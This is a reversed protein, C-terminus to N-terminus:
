LNRTVSFVQPEREFVTREAVSYDIQPGQVAEDDEGQKVSYATVFKVLIRCMRTSFNFHFVIRAGALSVIMLPSTDEFVIGWESNGNGQMQQPVVAGLFNVVDMTAASNSNQTDSGLAFDAVGTGTEGGQVSYTVSGHVPVGDSFMLLGPTVVSEDARFDFGNEEETYAIRVGELDDYQGVGEAQLVPMFGNGMFKFGKARNHFQRPSIYSDEAGEGGGCAPISLACAAAALFYGLLRTKKM